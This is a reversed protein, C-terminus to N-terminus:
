QNEGKLRRLTQQRWAENKRKRMDELEAKRAAVGTDEYAPFTCISVEYLRVSELHYIVEGADRYETSEREIDFGFSCQTVDRRAIREYANVADQDKENLEIRGWLGIDDVRLTDHNTLARVDADRDLNFAGRDVTEWANPWLLYRTGFKAFYGEIYRKGDEARTLFEGDATIATRQWKM